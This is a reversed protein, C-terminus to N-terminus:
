KRTVELKYGGWSPLSIDGPYTHIRYIDRVHRVHGLFSNQLNVQCLFFHAQITFHCLDTRSSNSSVGILLSLASEVTAM